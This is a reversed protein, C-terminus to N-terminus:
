FISPFLLMIESTEIFQEIKGFVEFIEDSIIVTHTYIVAVIISGSTTSVCEMYEMYANAVRFIYIFKTVIICGFLFFGAHIRENFAHKPNTANSRIGLIAYQRSLKQFVKM